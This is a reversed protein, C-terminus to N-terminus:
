LLLSLVVVVVVAVVDLTSVAMTTTFRINDAMNHTGRVSNPSGFLEVHRSHSGFGPWKNAAM